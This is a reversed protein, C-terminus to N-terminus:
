AFTDVFTGSFGLRANVGRLAQEAGVLMSAILGSGAEDGRLVDMISDGRLQLGTTFVRRDISAYDGRARAGSSDDIRIGFLGSAAEDGLARRVASELPSRFLGANEGKGAFSADRFLYNFESFVDSMSDAIEYSRRRSVGRTSAVEGLRGDQLNLAGFFGTGNSDLELGADPASPEIRVLQTDSDFTATVGAASANIKDLMTALSDAATDISIPEGNVVIDGSRVASFAAVSNFSLVDEPDSGPVVSAGGLKTAALFNSTDNQLDITPAAGPTDQLIDIREAVANFSATVGAGSQNISSIVDNLTDSTSVSVNQGNIDFSGDVVTPGGFQLNPNDNRIGGLPKDPDVAAGVIESVGITTFDRNVLSGPGLTLYLGNRLDYQRDEEHWTRVNVNRIRVGNPDEVRIRLDNVGRTGARRVEFSLQGSGHTGDYEGGITIEASSGDRWAPGFPAFSMPSANIEETSSLSAATNTLDLALANSSVAQTFVSRSSPDVNALGALSELSRYLRLLRTRARLLDTRSTPDVNLYPKLGPASERVPAVRSTSAINQINQIVSM